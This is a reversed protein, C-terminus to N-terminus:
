VWKRKVGSGPGFKFVGLLKVLYITIAAPRPSLPSAIQRTIENCFLFFFSPHLPRVCFSLFGKDILFFFLFLFLFIFFLSLFSEVSM